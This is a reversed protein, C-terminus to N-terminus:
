NNINISASIPYHDSLKVKHSQFSNVSMNKDAFIFDIRFPLFYNYTKGLGSGAEVFADKHTKTLQNYNWSFANNNFDGMLISPYPSKQIHEQLLKIQSSQKKFNYSIKKLLAENGTNGYYQKNTNLYFSQLHINYIRIIKKDIKIDAFIANNSTQPFVLNGYNVIKYNSYIAQGGSRTKIETKYPHTLSINKANTYEQFCVIDANQDNIYNCIKQKINPSKIWNLRNFQRVNYSLVKVSNNEVPDPNKSIQYLAKLHNSGLLLVLLSILFQPKLKLIWLVVFILNAAVLIPFVLNLISVLAYQEPDLFPILYALILFTAVFINALFLLKDLFNLKKM